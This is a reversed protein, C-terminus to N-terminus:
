EGNQVESTVNLINHVNKKPGYIAIGDNKIAPYVKLIPADYNMYVICKGSYM